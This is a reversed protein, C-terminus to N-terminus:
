NIKLLSIFYRADLESDILADGIATQSQKICKMLLAYMDPEKESLAITAYLKAMIIQDKMLRLTSDTNILHFEQRWINYSSRVKNDFNRSKNIAANRMELEVKNDMQLLEQVRQVKRRHRFVQLLLLLVGFGSLHDSNVCWLTFWVFVRVAYPPIFNVQRKLKIPDVGKTALTEASSLNTAESGNALLLDESAKHQHWLLLFVWSLYM